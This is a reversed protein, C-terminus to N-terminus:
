SEKKIINEIFNTLQICREEIRGSIKLYKINFEEFINLIENDTQLQVEKNIGRTLDGEVMPFEIPIYLIYSYKLLFPIQEKLLPIMYPAKNLVKAYAISCIPGRLLISNNEEVIEKLLINTNAINIKVQLSENMQEDYPINPILFERGRGEIIKLKPYKNQIYNVLTTKGVGSAGVIYILKKRM